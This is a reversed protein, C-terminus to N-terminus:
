TTTLLEHFKKQQLYTIDHKKDALTFNPKDLLHSNKIKGKM